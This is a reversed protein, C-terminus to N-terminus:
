HYEHTLRKFVETAVASTWYHKYERVEQYRNSAFTTYYEGDTGNFIALGLKSLEAWVTHQDVQCLRAIDSISYLFENSM